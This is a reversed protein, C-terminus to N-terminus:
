PMFNKQVPSFWTILGCLGLLELTTGRTINSNKRNWSRVRAQACRNGDQLRWRPYVVRYDRGPCVYAATEAFYCRLTTRRDFLARPMLRTTRLKHTTDYSCTTHAPSWSFITRGDINSVTTFAFSPEHRIAFSSISRSRSSSAFAASARAAACTFKESTQDMM